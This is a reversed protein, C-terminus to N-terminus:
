KPMLTIGTTTVSLEGPVLFVRRFLEVQALICPQEVLSVSKMRQVPDQMHEDVHIVECVVIWIIFERGVIFEEM